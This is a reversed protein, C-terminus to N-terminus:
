MQIHWLSNLICTKNNRLSRIIAGYIVSSGCVGSQFVLCRDVCTSVVFQSSLTDQIHGLAYEECHSRSSEKCSWQGCATQEDHLLQRKKLKRHEFHSWTHDPITVTHLWNRSEEQAKQEATRKRTCTSDPEWFWKLNERQKTRHEQLHLFINNQESILKGVTAIRGM